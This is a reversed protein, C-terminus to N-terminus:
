DAQRTQWIHWGIILISLDGIVTGIAILISGTTTVMLASTPTVRAMVALLITIWLDATLAPLWTETRRKKAWVILATVIVAFALLFVTGGKRTLFILGATPVWRAALNLAVLLVLVIIGWSVIQGKFAFKPTLWTGIALAVILLGYQVALLPAQLPVAPLFATPLVIGITLLLFPFGLDATLWWPRPWLTTLLTEVADEPEGGFFQSAPEDRQQAILLGTLLDHLQRDSTRKPQKALLAVLRDWYDRNSATLQDRLAANQTAIAPHKAM